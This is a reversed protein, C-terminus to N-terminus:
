HSKGSPNGYDKYIEKQKDTKVPLVLCATYRITCSFLETQNQEVM